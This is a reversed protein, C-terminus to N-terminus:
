RGHDAELLYTALEQDENGKQVKGFRDIALSAYQELRSLSGCVPDNRNGNM